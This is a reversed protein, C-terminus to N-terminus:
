GLPWVDKTATSGTPPPYGSRDRSPSKHIGCMRGYSAFAM